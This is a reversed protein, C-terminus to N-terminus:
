EELVGQFHDLIQFFIVEVSELLDFIWATLDVLDDAIIVKFFNKHNKIYFKVFDKDDAQMKKWDMQIASDRLSEDNPLLNASYLM